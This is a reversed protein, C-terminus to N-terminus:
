YIVMAVSDFRFENILYEQITSVSIENDTDSFSFIRSKKERKDKLHTLNMLSKKVPFFQTAMSPHSYYSNKGETDLYNTLNMMSTMVSTLQQDMSPYRSKGGSPKPHSQNMASSLQTEM